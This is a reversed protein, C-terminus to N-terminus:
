DFRDGVTVVADGRLKANFARGFGNIKVLACEIRRFHEPQSGRVALDPM